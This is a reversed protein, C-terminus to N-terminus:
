RGELLTAVQPARLRLKRMAREAVFQIYAKTCGVMAAIEEFTVAVGQQPELRAIAADFRGHRAVSTKGSCHWCRSGYVHGNPKGGAKRCTYRPFQNTPLDRECMACHRLVPNM